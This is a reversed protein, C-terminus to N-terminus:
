PETATQQVSLGSRIPPPRVSRIYANAVPLGTGFDPPTLETRCLIGYDRHQTRVCQTADQARRYARVPKLPNGRAQDTKREGSPGIFSDVMRVTSRTSGEARQVSNCVAACRQGGSGLAHRRRGVVRQSAAEGDGRGCGGSGGRGSGGGAAAM